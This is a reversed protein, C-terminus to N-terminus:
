MSDKDVNEYVKAVAAQVKRGARTSMRGATAIKADLEDESEAETSTASDGLIREGKAGDQSASAPELKLYHDRIPGTHSLCQIVANNFCYNDHNKLGVLTQRKQRFKPGDSDEPTDAMEHFARKLSSRVKPASALSSDSGERWSSDDSALPDSKVKRTKKKLRGSTSKPVTEDNEDRKRKPSRRKPPKPPNLYLPQGKSKTKKPVRSETYEGDDDADEPEEELKRIKALKASSPAEVDTETDEGVPTASLKINAM